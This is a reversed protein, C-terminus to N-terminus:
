QDSQDFTGIMLKRTNALSYILTEGSGENSLPDGGASSRIIRDIVRIWDLNAVRMRPWSVLCLLMLM